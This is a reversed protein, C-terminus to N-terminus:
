RLPLEPPQGFHQTLPFAIVDTAGIMRLSETAVLQETQQHNIVFSVSFWREGKETDLTERTVVPAITPGKLGVSGLSPLDFLKRAVDEPTNGPVNAMVIYRGEANLNAHIYELVLWASQVAQDDYVEKNVCAILAASSHLIPRPPNGLRLGTLSHASLTSGTVVVDAILDAAGLHPLLEHSGQFLRVGKGSVGHEEMYNQTLGPYKTAVRLDRGLQRAWGTLDGVPIDGSDGFRRSPAALMLRSQGFGLDPILCSVNELGSLSKEEFWDRGTIGLHAGGEAVIAPIDDPRLFVAECEPIDRVEEVLGTGRRSVHIGCANLMNLTDNLLRNNSPLALRLM